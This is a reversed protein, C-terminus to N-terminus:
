ASSVLKQTLEPYDNRTSGVETSVAYAEFDERGRAILCEIEEASTTPDLWASFDDEQLVVPMRHHLHSMSPAAEKSLLACSAIDPESDRSKIAWLGAFAIVESNPSSFFYPQKVLRGNANRVKEKENWEYWGLAPMLCRQSRLSKRWTPKQAAEESRANFTLLPPTNKSWWHPILGWRAGLTEYSGDQTQVIIPVRASPAVNFLPKIWGEWNRRDVLWFRELAAEDPSVYRGCV